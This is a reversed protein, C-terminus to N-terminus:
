RNGQVPTNEEQMSLPHPNSCSQSNKWGVDGDGDAGLPDRFDLTCNKLIKAGRSPAGGASLTM